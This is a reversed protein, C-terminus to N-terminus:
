LNYRILNKIIEFEEIEEPTSLREVDKQYIIGRAIQVNKEANWKSHDVTHIYEVNYQAGYKTEDIRLIQLCNLISGHLLHNNCKVYDGINYDKYIDEELNIVYTDNYSEFIKFKTIM